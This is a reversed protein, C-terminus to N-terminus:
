VNETAGLHAGPEPYLNEFYASVEGDPPQVGMSIDRAVKLEPYIDESLLAFATLYEAASHKETEVVTPTGVYSECIFFYGLWDEGRVKVKFVNYFRLSLAEIGVEEKLERAAAAILTEGEEPKGGAFVWSKAGTRNKLSLFGSHSENPLAISVYVNKMEDLRRPRPTARTM